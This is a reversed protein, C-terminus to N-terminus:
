PRVCLNGQTGEELLVRVGHSALIHQHRHTQPWSWRQPHSVTCGTCAHPEVALAQMLVVHLCGQAWAAARAVHKMASCCPCHMWACRSATRRFSDSPVCFGECACIHPGNGAPHALPLYHQLKVPLVLRQSRACWNNEHHSYTAHFPSPM